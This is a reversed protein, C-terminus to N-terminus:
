KLSSELSIMAKELEEINSVELWINDRGVMYIVVLYPIPERIVQGNDDIHPSYEHLEYKNIIDVIEYYKEISFDGQAVINQSNTYSDSSVSFSCYDYTNSSNRLQYCKDYHGYNEDFNLYLAISRSDQVAINLESLQKQANDDEYVEDSSEMYANEVTSNKDSLSSKSDDSNNRYLWLTLILNIALSISLCIALVAILGKNEM